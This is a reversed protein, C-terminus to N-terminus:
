KTCKFPSLSELSKEFRQVDKTYERVKADIAEISYVNKFLFTTSVYTRDLAERVRVKETELVKLRKDKTELTVKMDKITMHDHYWKGALVVVTSLSIAPSVLSIDM